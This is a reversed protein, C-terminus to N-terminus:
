SSHSELFFYLAEEDAIEKGNIIENQTEVPLEHIEIGTTMYYEHLNDSRYVVVYNDVTRLMFEAQPEAISEPTNELVVDKEDVVHAETPRVIDAEFYEDLNYVQDQSPNTGPAKQNWIYWGGVALVCALVPVFVYSKWKNKM